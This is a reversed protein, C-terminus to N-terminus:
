REVSVLINAGYNFVVSPVGWVVRDKYEGVFESCEACSDFCEGRFNSVM